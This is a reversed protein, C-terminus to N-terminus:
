LAGYSHGVLVVDTLDEYRLVNAVDDVHTDLDVEPRALHSRDGVGTLTVPHVEHGQARLAAAVPQWVWGGLWFGPVLVYTTM